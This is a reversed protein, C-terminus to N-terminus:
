DILSRWGLFKPFRPKDKIGIATYGYKLTRGPLQDRIAWLSSREAATLGTGVKFEIGPFHVEDRVILKGLTGAPVMFEKKRARETYGREDIEAPNDNHMLEETGVVVAEEDVFRKFKILWGQNLTSRGQKYPGRPDRLCIGEYGLELFRDEAELMEDLNHTLTHPVVVVHDLNKARQVAEEHRREFDWPIDLHYSDFVHWEVDPFGDHTMVASDTDRFMTPSTPDGFILEGDLFEYQPKAFRAQTHRNPILKLRRSLLANGQGTARIGDLKPSLLLPFRLKHFEEPELKHALMPNFLKGM